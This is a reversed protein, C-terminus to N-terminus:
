IGIVEQTPFNILEEENMSFNQVDQVKDSEQVYLGQKRHAITNGHVFFVTKCSVDM